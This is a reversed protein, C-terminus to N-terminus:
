AGRYAKRSVNTGHARVYARIFYSTFFLPKEKAADDSSTLDPSRITPGPASPPM